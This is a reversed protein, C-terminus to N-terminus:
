ISWSIVEKNYLYIQYVIYLFIKLFEDQIMFLYITIMLCVNGLWLSWYLESQSTVFQMEFSFNYINEEALILFVDDVWSLTMHETSSMLSTDKYKQLMQM